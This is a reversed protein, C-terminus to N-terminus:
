ELQWDCTRNSPLLERHLVPQPGEVTTVGTGAILRYPGVFVDAGATLWGYAAAISGMRTGGRSGLDVCFVADEWRVLLAHRRSVEIDELRLDCQAARGVLVLPHEARLEQVIVSEPGELRVSIPTRHTVSPREDHATNPMARLERAPRGAIM